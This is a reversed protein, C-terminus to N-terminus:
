GQLNGSSGEHFRKKDKVFPPYLKVDMESDIAAQVWERRPSGGGRSEKDRGGCGPARAEMESVM